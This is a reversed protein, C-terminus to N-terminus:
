KKETGNPKERKRQPKLCKIIVKRELAIEIKKYKCGNWNGERPKTTM